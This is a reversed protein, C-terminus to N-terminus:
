HLASSGLSFLQGLLRRRKLNPFANFYIALMDHAFSVSIDRRADELLSVLDYTIPGMGWLGDQFDIFGCRNFGQSLSGYCIISWYMVCSLAKLFSPNIRM